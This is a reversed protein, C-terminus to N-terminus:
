LIPKFIHSKTKFKIEIKNRFLVSIADKLGIGFRGIMGDNSLKEDNENQVFNKIEIGRGFDRIIMESESEDYTIEIDKSKQLKTEDFANAILERLADEISWNELITQINLDFLEKKM